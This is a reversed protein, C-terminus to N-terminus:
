ILSGMGSLPKATKTISNGSHGNKDRWIMFADILRDKWDELEGEAASGEAKFCQGGFQSAQFLFEAHPETEGRNQVAKVSAAITGLGNAVEVVVSALKKSLRDGTEGEGKGYIKVTASAPKFHYATFLADFRNVKPADPAADPKPAALPQNSSRPAAAAQRAIDGAAMLLVPAVTFAAIKM